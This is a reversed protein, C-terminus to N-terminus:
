LKNLIDNINGTRNFRGGFPRRQKKRIPNVYTNNRELSDEEDYSVNDLTFDNRELYDVMRQKYVKRDDEAQRLMNARQQDTAQNFTGRPDVPTTVGFQTINTGHVGLFRVYATLCWYPKVYTEFFSYTEPFGAQDDISLDIATMLDAGLSPELNLDRAAKIHPTIIRGEVNPAIQAYVGIEALTITAAM